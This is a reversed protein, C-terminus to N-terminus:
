APHAPAAAIMEIVDRWGGDARRRHLRASPYWPCSEGAEFWFWVPAPPVLVDTEVGLGGALHATIGAITVVHDLVSILAALGDLDDKVDLGPFPELAEHHEDGPDYQLTIIRRRRDGLLSLWDTLRTSKRAGTRPNGTRWCLGIAPSSPGTALLARRMTERRAPDPVLWAKGTRFAGDRRWALMPLRLTSSQAAIGAPLRSGRGIVEAGPLSRALLPVLRPDTELVVPVGRAILDPVFAAYLLEDGVGHECWLLLRGREVAAGDWLPFRRAHEPLDPMPERWPLDYHAFGTEFDRRLLAIWSKIWLAKTDAPARRLAEQAAALAASSAGADLEAAALNTLTGLDDPDLALAARYQTVAEDIRGSEHALAGLNVRSSVDGPEARIARRYAAEGAGDDHGLQGLLRWGPGDGPESALARRLCRAATARQGAALAATAANRWASASLPSHRAARDARVSAEDTRGDRLLLDVVRGAAPAYGPDVTLARDYFARAVAPSHGNQALLGLNYYTPADNPGHALAARLARAAADFRGTGIAQRARGLLTTRVEPAM